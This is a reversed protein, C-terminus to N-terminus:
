AFGGRLPPTEGGEARFLISVSVGVGFFDTYQIEFSSTIDDVAFLRM